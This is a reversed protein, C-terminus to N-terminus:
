LYVADQMVSEYFPTGAYEDEWTQNFHVMPSILNGTEFALDFLPYQIKITDSYNIQKNVLILLDIDSEKNEDGRAYSGYLIVTAGPETEQVTKKIRSM